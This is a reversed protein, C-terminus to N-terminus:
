GQRGQTLLDVGWQSAAESVSENKLKARDVEAALTRLDDLDMSLFITRKVDGEMYGVVLTQALVLAKVSAADESYVPRLESLIKLDAVPNPRNVLMQYSKNAVSFTNDKEFLPGIREALAKWRDLNENRWAEPTERELAKSLTELFEPTELGLSVRLHNLPMLAGVVLRSATEMDIDLETSLRRTLDKMSLTLILDKAAEHLKAVGEPGLDILAKLGALGFDPIQIRIDDTM